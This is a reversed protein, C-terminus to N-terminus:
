DEEGYEQQIVQPRVIVNGRPQQGNGSEADFHDDFHGNRKADVRQEEQVSAPFREPFAQIIVHVVDSREPVGHLKTEAYEEKEVASPNENELASASYPSNHHADVCIEINPAVSARTPRHKHLASRGHVLDVTQGFRFVLLQASQVVNAGDAVLLHLGRLDRPALVEKVSDAQPLPKVHLIATRKAVFDQVADVAVLRLFILIHRLYLFVIQIM